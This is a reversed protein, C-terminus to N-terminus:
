FNLDDYIVDLLQTSTGITYWQSLDTGFTSSVSVPLSFAGGTAALSQGRTATTNADGVRMVAAGNNQFAAWKCRIAVASVQVLSGTQAVQLTKISM